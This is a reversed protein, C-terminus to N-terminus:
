LETCIKPIEAQILNEQCSAADIQILIGTYLLFNLQDYKEVNLIDQGKNRFKKFVNQM